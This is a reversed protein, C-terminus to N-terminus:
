PNLCPRTRRRVCCPATELRHNVYHFFFFSFGYRTKNGGTSLVVLERSDHKQTSPANNLGPLGM